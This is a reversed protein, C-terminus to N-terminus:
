RNHIAAASGVTGDIQRGGLLVILAGLTGGAAPLLNLLVARLVPLGKHILISVDGIHHPTEHLLVAVTTIVGLHTETIYGTAIAMGDVFSHIGAGVLLNTVMPRSSDSPSPQLAPNDGHPHIHSHGDHTHLYDGSHRNCWVGLSKEIVFFIVLGALLLGALERGAGVREVSEPLLHGFATGLLAGTALSVMVPIIRSLHHPSVSLALMGILSLGAILAISGFTYIWHIDLPHMYAVRAYLVLADHTSAASLPM